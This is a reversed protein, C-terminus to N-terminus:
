KKIVRIQFVFKLIVVSDFVMNCKFYNHVFNSSSSADQTSSSHGYNRTYIIRFISRSSKAEIIECWAICDINYSMPKM